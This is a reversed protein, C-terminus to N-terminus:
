ICVEFTNTKSGKIKIPGSGESRYFVTIIMATSDITFINPFPGEYTIGTEQYAVVRAAQALRASVDQKYRPHIRTISCLYFDCDRIKCLKM